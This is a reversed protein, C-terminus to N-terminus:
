EPYLKKGAASLLTVVVAVDVGAATWIGGGLAFTDSNINLYHM